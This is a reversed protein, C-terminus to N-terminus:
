AAHVVEQRVVEFSADAGQLLSRMRAHSSM